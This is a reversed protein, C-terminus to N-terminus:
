AQQNEELQRIAALLQSPHSIFCTAGINELFDRDRFGWLVSVCPLGANQATAFDVESDGIYVSEERTSGLAELAANVGDPLPKRRVAESEGIAIPILSGFFRENLEVVAPHVKNSVVAMKYGARQLEELMPLIGEYPATKDLCHELYHRQFDDFIATFEEEPTAAPVAALVLARIGNGLFRRVEDKSRAPKGHSTLAFNVSDTLDQLTDLVTGDMDFVLTTIKTM